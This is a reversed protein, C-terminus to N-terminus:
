PCSLNVTADDFLDCDLAPSIDDAVNVARCFACQIRETVCAPFLVDGVATCAGAFHDGIPSFGRDICRTGERAIKGDARLVKSAPDAQPPGLCTSVLAVDDSIIAISERKCTRFVKWRETVAKGMAKALGSQCKGATASVSVTPGFIAHAVDNAALESAHSICAGPVCTGDVCEASETCLAGDNTGGECCSAGNVGWAPVPQCYGDFDQLLRAERQDAKLELPDDVCATADGGGLNFQNRICKADSRGAADVVKGCGTNMRDICKYLQNYVYGDIAYGDEMAGITVRDDPGLDVSYTLRMEAATYSPDTGRASGGVPQAAAIAPQTVTALVVPTTTSNIELEVTSAASSVPNLNPDDIDASYLVTWGLPPGAVTLASSNLTVEIQESGAGLNQLVATSSPAGGLHIGSGIPGTGESIRGLGSLVGGVPAGTLDFDIVGVDVTNLDGPGDDLITLSTANAEFTVDLAPAAPAFFLTLLGALVFVRHSANM